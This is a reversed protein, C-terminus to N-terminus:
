FLLTFMVPQVLTFVIFAPVRRWGILNRRTITLADIVAWRLRHLSGRGARGPPPLTVATM